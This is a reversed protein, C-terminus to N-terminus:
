KTYSYHKKTYFCNIWTDSTLKNLTFANSRWCKRCYVVYTYYFLIYIVLLLLLFFLYIFITTKRTIDTLKSPDAIIWFSLKEFRQYFFSGTLITEFIIKIMNFRPWFLNKLIRLSSRFSWKRLDNKFVYQDKRIFKLHFKWYLCFFSGWFHDLHSLKKFNYNLFWFISRLSLNKIDSLFNDSLVM